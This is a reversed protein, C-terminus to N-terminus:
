SSPIITGETFLVFNFLRSSPPQWLVSATKVSQTQGAQGTSTLSVRSPLSSPQAVNINTVSGTATRVRVRYGLPKCAGTFLPPTSPTNSQETAVQKLDIPTGPNYGSNSLFTRGSYTTTGDSAIVVWSVDLIDSATGDGTIVLSSPAETGSCPMDPDLIDFTFSQGVDLRPVTLPGSSGAATVVFQSKNGLQGSAYNNAAGVATDMSQSPRGTKMVALGREIGSDASLSAIIFDDLNKSQSTTSSIVVSVAITSATIAAMLLLALLLVIGSRAQNKFLRQSRVIRNKMDDAISAPFM